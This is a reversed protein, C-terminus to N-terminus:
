GCGKQFPSEELLKKMAEHNAIFQPLFPRDLDYNYYRYFLFQFMMGRFRESGIRLILHGYDATAAFDTKVFAREDKSFNQYFWDKVSVSGGTFHHARDMSLFYDFERGRNGPRTTFPYLRCARPRAEYVSCRRDKLFICSHEPGIAKLTFIPVAETLMMPEAIESLVDEIGDVRKGRARLYRSLRYIDLPELMIAHSVNKCCMGCLQCHFSVRDKLRVPKLEFAM